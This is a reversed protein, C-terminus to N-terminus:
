RRCSTIVCTCHMMMKSLYPDVLQPQEQYRDLLDKLRYIRAEIDQTRSVIEPIDKILDSIFDENEFRRLAFSVHTEETADEQYSNDTSQHISPEESLETEPNNMGEEM